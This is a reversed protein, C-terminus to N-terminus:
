QENKILTWQLYKFKPNYVLFETGNLRVYLHGQTRIQYSRLIQFEFRSHVRGQPERM